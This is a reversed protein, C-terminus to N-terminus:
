CPIACFSSDGGMPFKFQGHALVMPMSQSPRFKGIVVDEPFNFVRLRVGNETVTSAFPTTDQMSPAAKQNPSPADMANPFNKKWFIVARTITPQSMWTHSEQSSRGMARSARLCDPALTPLPLRQIHMRAASKLAPKVPQGHLAVFAVAAMCLLLAGAVMTILLGRSGFPSGPASEDTDDMTAGGVNENSTTGAGSQQPKYLLATCRRRQSSEGSRRAIRGPNSIAGCSKKRLLKAMVLKWQPLFFM